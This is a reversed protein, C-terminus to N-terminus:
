VGGAVAFFDLWPPAKQRDGISSAAACFSVCRALKGLARLATNQILVGCANVM